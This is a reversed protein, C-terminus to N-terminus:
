SYLVRDIATVANPLDMGEKFALINDVVMEGMRLNAEFTASGIHPTVLVNPMTYITNRMDPEKGYVDTAYGGLHGSILGKELATERIIGSRATNILLAGEKMYRIEKAGILNRTSDTLPTHITVVDSKRLLDNLSTYMIGFRAAEATERIDYGIVDMGFGLARKAVAMGISGVGIIGLTKGYLSRGPIKNYLGNKLQTVHETLMRALDLLLALTLDATEEINAMPTNCVKINNKFACTLDIGDVGSGSIAILKLHDSLKGITRADLVDNGLIICDAGRAMEVIEDSQLPRGYPSLVVECGANKLRDVPEQNFIGFTAACSVVKFTHM